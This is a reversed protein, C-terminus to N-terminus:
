QGVVIDGPRIQREGEILFIQCAKKLLYIGMVRQKSAPWTSLAGYYNSKISNTLRQLGIADIMCAERTYAEVPIVNQFCQLSVVGHGENWVDLIHAVKQGPKKEQDSKLFHLAENFHAYPRNRKGKGVYFIASTFTTFVELETMNTYRLPLNNSVRPDLLLYNFSSKIKGERWNDKQEYEMQMDTEVDAMNPPITLNGNIYSALELRFGQKQDVGAALQKIAEPDTKLQYLKQLYVKRTTQTIPGVNYGFNTLEESLEQDTLHSFSADEESPSSTQISQYQKWDYIITEQTTELCSEQTTEVGLKSASPCWREILITDAETDHHVFQTSTEEVLQSLSTNSLCSRNTALSNNTSPLQSVVYSESSEGSSSSSSTDSSMMPSSENLSRRHESFCDSTRSWPSNNESPPPPGPLNIESSDSTMLSSENFALRRPDDHCTVFGLSTSPTSPRSDNLSSSTDDFRSPFAVTKDLATCEVVTTGPSGKFFWLPHDPSTVDFGQKTALYTDSIVKEPLATNYISSGSSVDSDTIPHTQSDSMDFEEPEQRQWPEKLINICDWSESDRAYELADKGADDTMTPDGGMDLLLCLARYRGYAAAILVPTMGETSRVNPDAGYKLMVRVFELADECEVGVALHFPSVGDPLILNANAGQALIRRTEDLDESQVADVLAKAKRLAQM